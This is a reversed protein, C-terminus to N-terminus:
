TLVFQVSQEFLDIDNAFSAADAHDILLWSKWVIGEDPGFISCEARAESLAQVQAEPLKITVGHTVVFAFVKGNIKYAPFGFAKGGKVGPMGLVLSDVMAKVDERYSTDM